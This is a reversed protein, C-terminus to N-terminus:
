ATRNAADFARAGAVYARLADALLLMQDTDPDSVLYGNTYIPRNQKVSANGKTLPKAIGDAGVMVTITGGRAAKLRFHGHWAQVDPALQFPRRHFDHSRIYEVLRFYPIAGMLAARTDEGSFKRRGDKVQEYFNEAFAAASYVAALLMACHKEPIQTRAAQALFLEARDLHTAIDNPDRM